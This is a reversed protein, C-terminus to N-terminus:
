GEDGGQDADERQEHEKMQNEEVEVETLKRKVASSCSGVVSLGAVAVSLSMWLIHNM